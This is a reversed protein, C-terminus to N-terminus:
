QTGVWGACAQSINYHATSFFLLTYYVYIFIYMMSEDIYTNMGPDELLTFSAGFNM